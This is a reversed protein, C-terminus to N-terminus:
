CMISRMIYLVIYLLCPLDDPKQITQFTAKERESYMMSLLSLNFNIEWHLVTVLPKIKTQLGVIKLGIAKRRQSCVYVEGSTGQYIKIRTFCLVYNLDQSQSVTHLDPEEPKDCSLNLSAHLTPLPM